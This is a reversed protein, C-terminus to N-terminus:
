AGARRADASEPSPASTDDPLQAVLAASLAKGSLGSREELEIVPANIQRQLIGRARRERNRRRLQGRAIEALQDLHQLAPERMGRRVMRAIDASEFAAPTLRNFVVAATAIKLADLARHIELTEAIALPEASTVAVAACRRRDAFFSAVADAERAVISDGFTERAVFPMKLMSLAQGSAPTDFIILDWRPKRKPRREIEHFVKGMMTLERLAPAARVFYQYLSSAFVARLIPRPVVPGLYDELSEQGGLFMGWLNRGLEVPAFGPKKGYAAAIPTRADTEMVLTRMGRGAAVIALAAGVTSRGVGGKGVIALVRRQLM